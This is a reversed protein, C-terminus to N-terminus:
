FIKKEFILKDLGYYILGYILVLIMLMSVAMFHSQQWFQKWHLSVTKLADGACSM